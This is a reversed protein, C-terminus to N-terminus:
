CPLNTQEAKTGKEAAISGRAVRELYLEGARTILFWYRQMTTRGIRVRTVFPLEAHLLFGGILKAGALALVRSEIDDQDLDNSALDSSSELKHVVSEFPTYDRSVTQLIMRDLM